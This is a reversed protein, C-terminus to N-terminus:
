GSILFQLVDSQVEPHKALWHPEPNHLGNALLRAGQSVNDCGHVGRLCFHRLM